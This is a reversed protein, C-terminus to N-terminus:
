TKLKKQMIGAEPKSRLKKIKANHNRHHHHSRHQQKKRHYIQHQKNKSHYRSKQTIENTVDGEPIENNHQYKEFYGYVNKKDKGNAQRSMSGGDFTNHMTEYISKFRRNYKRIYPPIHNNDQSSRKNSASKYNGDQM